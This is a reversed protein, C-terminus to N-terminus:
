KKFIQPNNRQFGNDDLGYGYIWVDSGIILPKGIIDHNMSKYREILPAFLIQKPKFSRLKKEIVKYTNGSDSIDDVIIVISKSNISKIHKINVTKTKGSYSKYHVTEIKHPIVLNRSLDSLYPYCGDLVGVLVINKEKEFREYISDAIDLVANKIVKESFLLKSNIDDEKILKSARTVAKLFNTKNRKRGKLKKMISKHLQNLITEKSKKM